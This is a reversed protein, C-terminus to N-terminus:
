LENNTSLLKIIEGHVKKNAALAHFEGGQYNNTDVPFIKKGKWDTIIGGASEVILAGAAIDWLKACSVLTAVLGGSAVYAFQLATTGLNRYRTRKMIQRAWAPVGNDFSSDLGISSFKNIKDESVAMRRTNLQAKGNKVATFISETAPDFIAGVIPEGQYMVAISVTFLFMQHAFNNTGDIPDIVWWYPENNKPPQKFIGGQKGEEAIFGHHPYIKKIRDIIVQQCRADAQTVYENNNKVSVKLHSIEKMALRGALNAAVIATELMQSLDKQELM